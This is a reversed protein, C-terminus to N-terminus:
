IRQEPLSGTPFLAGLTTRLDAPWESSGWGDHLRFLLAISTPPALTQLFYSLISINSQIISRLQDRVKINIPNSTKGQLYCKVVRFWALSRIRGSIPTVRNSRERPTTLGDPGKQALGAVPCGTLCGRPGPRVSRGSGIRGNGIKPTLVFDHRWM